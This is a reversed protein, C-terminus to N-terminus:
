DADFPAVEINVDLAQGPQGFHEARAGGEAESLGLRFTGNAITWDIHGAVVSGGGWHREVRTVNSAGKETLAFDVYYYSGASFKAADGMARFRLEVEGSPTYKWFLANEPSGKGDKGLVPALKVEVSGDWHFTKSLCRM